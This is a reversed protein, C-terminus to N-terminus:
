HTWKHPEKLKTIDWSSLMNSRTAVLEPKCYRPHQHQRRRGHIRGNESLIRCMM